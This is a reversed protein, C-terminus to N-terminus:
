RQLNKKPGKSNKLIPRIYEAPKFSLAPARIDGKRDVGSRKVLQGLPPDIVKKNLNGLEHLQSAPM